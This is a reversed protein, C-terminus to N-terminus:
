RGSQGKVKGGWGASKTGGYWVVGAAINSKGMQKLPMVKIWDDVSLFRFVADAGREKGVGPWENACGTHRSHAEKAWEQRKMGVMVISSEMGIARAYWIEWGFEQGETVVCVLRGVWKALIIKVHLDLSKRGELNNKLTSQRLGQGREGTDVQVM